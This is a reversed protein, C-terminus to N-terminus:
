KTPSRRRIRKKARRMRTRRPRRLRIPRQRRSLSTSKRKRKRLWKRLRRRPKRRSPLPMVDRKEMSDACEPADPDALCKVFAEIDEEEANLVEAFTEEDMGDEIEKKAERCEAGLGLEMEVTGCALKWVANWVDVLTEENKPDLEGPEALQQMVVEKFLEFTGEMKEGLKDGM